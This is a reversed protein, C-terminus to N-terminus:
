SGERGGAAFPRVAKRVVFPAVPRLRLSERVAWELYELAPLQGAEPPGGGTVRGLEDGLRDVVEPHGAIEGLAWALALATTDHGAILITFLADRVERDGLPTGDEHAASLLDDLV